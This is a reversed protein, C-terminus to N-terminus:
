LIFLFIYNFLLTPNYRILFLQSMDSGSIKMDNRISHIKLVTDYGVEDLFFILRLYAQFKLYEMM